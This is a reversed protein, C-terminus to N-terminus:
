AAVTVETCPAASPLANLKAGPLRAASPSIGHFRVFARAFSDPSNYGYKVAADIVKCGGSALELGALTLRRKRIYEGLPMGCLLSFVRQFHYSSVYCQKAVAACDMDETLHDELYGVAQDLLQHCDM